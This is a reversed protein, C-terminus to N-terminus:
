FYDEAPVEIELLEEELQKDVEKIPLVEDIFPQIEDVCDAIIERNDGYVDLTILETAHGMLKSVAKPNFNNKLLLTCFTSRLHHWKIDPLNNDVLLKKYYKWHFDKSRPKGYNSCCVYGSDQFQSRRRSKNREYVERQQLIAEFVYDPIPIDRYSSPTKLGLEQKTFTKPPFDEKKTNIKKGLQRRLKLTRNIYDIDSYKVGNIERRRLGMLVNLLIQMHIPTDRSAELLILIQDMTLTKQTDISRAHYEKKKVTKPLNIGVAPNEAIIKKAVAYNMSVNMVTKVLRSVSVSYEARDNYLKQVDGRNVSSMKKKGLIPIIHNYVINSYAAYTEESRVRKCIDEKIWFELFDSVKVNEYVIYTGAHLKGITNDRAANSEKETRFGSKQQTRETGDIYKLVVRYGFKGKIPIVPKVEWDVYQQLSLDIIM